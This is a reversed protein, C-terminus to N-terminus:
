REQAPCARRGGRPCPKAESVLAWTRALRQSEWSLRGEIDRGAFLFVEKSYIELLLIGPDVCRFTTFVQPGSDLAAGSISHSKMTATCLIPAEPCGLVSQPEHPVAAM